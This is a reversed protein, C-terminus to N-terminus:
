LAFSAGVTVTNATFTSRNTLGYLPDYVEPVGGKTYSSNHIYSLTATLYQNVMWTGIVGFRFQTQRRKPSDGSLSQSDTRAAEAYGRIFLNQHLEHDAEIRIDSVVQNRAFASTPDFIGRRGTVTITDIPTPTWIIDLEATPTTIGKSNVRTFQRTEAGVLARYQIVSDARLDLGLFGAGDAYDDLSGGANPAFQAATARMVSILANGKSIEFRTTLLASELQHSLSSFNRIAGKSSQGFDFRDYVASPTISFRGFNHTFGLRIDNTDYPVPYSIGFNGLDTAGLYQRSHSYGLTLSDEGLALSGGGSVSWTTTNAQMLEPNVTNAVNASMGLADRGWMSNARIGGTTVIQASGSNPQGLINTTYGENQSMTPRFNFDGLMIGPHINELIQRQVVSSSMDPAYGPLDSPFYQTFLQAHAPHALGFSLATGISWVVSRLLRSRHKERVKAAM